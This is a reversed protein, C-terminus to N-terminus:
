EQEDGKVELREVENENVVEGDKLDHDSIKKVEVTEEEDNQYQPELFLDQEKYYNAHSLVTNYVFYKNEEEDRDELIICKHYRWYVIDGVKYKPLTKYTPIGIIEIERDDRKDIYTTKPFTDNDDVRAIQITTYNTVDIGFGVFLWEEDKFRVKTGIPPNLKIFENYFM